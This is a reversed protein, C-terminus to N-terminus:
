RLPSGVFSIWLIIKVRSLCVNLAECAFWLTLWAPQCLPDLLVAESLRHDFPDAVVRSFQPRLDCSYQLAPLPFAVFILVVVRSPSASRFARTPSGIKTRPPTISSVAQLHRPNIPTIGLSPPPRSICSATCPGLGSRPPRGRFSLVERKNRAAKGRAPM